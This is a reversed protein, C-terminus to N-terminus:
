KIKILIIHTSLLYKVSEYQLLYYIISKFEIALNLDIINIGYYQIHM